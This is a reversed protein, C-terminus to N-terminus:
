TKYCYWPNTNYFIPKIIHNYQNTMLRISQLMLQLKPLGFCTYGIFLRYYTNYILIKTYLETISYYYNRFDYKLIKKTKLRSHMCDICLFLIVLM